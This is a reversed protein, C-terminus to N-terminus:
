KEETTEEDAEGRVRAPVGYAVTHPPIDHTVVSGAGTKAGDGVKVPAVLMTDSGIFADRGVVTPNKKKGDFNCTITGAGINANEGITADGLYSFHGMKAGPGLTSNKLEGFNGVHAGAGLHAGKRLHSFPGIDSGSDMVAGELVSLELRCDDGIVSDRVVTSPGVVCRRGIRTSGQLLTGPWLTTDGGIQVGAEIYTTAPDIFTVGELMWRENIRRRMEAEAQALAVRTNVRLAELADAPRADVTQGQRAASEVLDLLRLAGNPRPELQALAPWLWEDRFCVVGGAAEGPQFQEGASEDEEVVRVVTGGAQERVIRSCGNPDKPWSSLLTVTAGSACHHEVLARLTAPRVLPMDGGVVLVTAAKGAAASRVRLVARGTGTWEDHEAVEIGDRLWARVREAEHGVVAVSCTPDLSLVADVVFRLVPWGSLRHLTQPLDSRMRAGRADALVIVTLDM